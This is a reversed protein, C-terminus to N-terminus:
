LWHWRQVGSKLTAPRASAASTMRPRRSSPAAGRVGWARVFLGSGEGIGCVIGSTFFSRTFIKASPASRAPISSIARLGNM